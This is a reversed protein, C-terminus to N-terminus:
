KGITHRQVTVEFTGGSGAATSGKSITVANTTRAFSLGPNVTGNLTVALVSVWPIGLALQAATLGWNYTVSAPGADTDLFQVQAQVQSLPYDQLLTPPTTGAVPYLYTVQM